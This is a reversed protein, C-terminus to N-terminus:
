VPWPALAIFVTLSMSPLRELLVPYPPSFNPSLSACALVLVSGTSDASRRGPLDVFVFFFLPPTCLANLSVPPPTM